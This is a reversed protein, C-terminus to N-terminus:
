MICDLKADNLMFFATATTARIIKSPSSFTLLLFRRTQTRPQIALLCSIPADWLITCSNAVSSGLEYLSYQLLWNAYNRRRSVLGDSELRLSSVFKHSVYSPRCKLLRNFKFTLNSQSFVLIQTVSNCSISCITSVCLFKNPALNCFYSSILSSCYQACRNWLHICSATKAM